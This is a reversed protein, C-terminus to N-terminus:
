NRGNLGMAEAFMGLLGNFQGECERDEPSGKTFVDQKLNGPDFMDDRSHVTPRAWDKWYKGGLVQNLMLAGPMRYDRVRDEEEQTCPRGSVQSIFDRVIVHQDTDRGGFLEWGLARHLLKNQMVSFRQEEILDYPQYDKDLATRFSAPTRASGYGRFVEPFKKLCHSADVCTEMGYSFSCCDLIIEEGKITRFYLWYHNNPDGVTIRTNSKPEYYTWTQLRNEKGQIRGRCIGFDSVPSHGYEMRYCPRREWPEQGPNHSEV